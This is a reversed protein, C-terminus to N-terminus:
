GTKNPKQPVMHMLYVNQQYPQMCVFIKNSYQGQIEFGTFDRLCPVSGGSRFERKTRLQSNGIVEIGKFAQLSAM